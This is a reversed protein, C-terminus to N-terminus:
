DEMKIPNPHPIQQSRKPDKESGTEIMQKPGLERKSEDESAESQLNKFIRAKLDEM